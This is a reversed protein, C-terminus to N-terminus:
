SEFVGALWATWAKALADRDVPRGYVDAASSSAPAEAVVYTAPKGAIRCQYRMPKVVRQKNEVILVPAYYGPFIRSDRPELEARTIDELRRLAADIKDTAIRKSDIAPPTLAVAESVRLGAAYCTTLNARHKRTRVCSLCACAADCSGTSTVFKPTVTCFVSM